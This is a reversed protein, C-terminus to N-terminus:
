VARKKDQIGTNEDKTVLKNLKSLKEAKIKNLKERQM